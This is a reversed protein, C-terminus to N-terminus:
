GAEMKACSLEIGSARGLKEWRRCHAKGAASRRCCSGSSYGRFAAAPSGCRAAHASLVWLAREAALRPSACLEAKTHQGLAWAGFIQFATISPQDAGVRRCDAVAAAFKSENFAIAVLALAAAERARPGRFPLPDGVWGALDDAEEVAAAIDSALAELRHREAVPAVAPPRALSLIATLALEAITM